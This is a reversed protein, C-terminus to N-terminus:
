ARSSETQALLRSHQAAKESTTERNRDIIEISWELRM